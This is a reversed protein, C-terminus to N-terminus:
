GGALRGAFGELTQLGTLRSRWRDPINSVGYFAGAIQGYVAGTTDSDDGLNDALLAGQEFSSGECIGV